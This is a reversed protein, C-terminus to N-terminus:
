KIVEIPATVFSSMQDNAGIKETYWKLRGVTDREPDISFSLLQLDENGDFEDQVRKMQQAMKPCISPCHTFVFDTVVVKGKLSEATVTEGNQNTYKGPITVESYSPLDSQKQCAVVALAIFFLISLQKMNCLYHHFM